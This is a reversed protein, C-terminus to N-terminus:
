RMPSSALLLFNLCIAGRVSLERCITKAEDESEFLGYVSSGSGSMGSFLAGKCDLDEQIKKIVPYKDQLPATFSNEFRWESVPQAYLGELESVDPWILNADKNQMHWADVLRYAEATPSSFRPWILVGYVDTRASVPRIIEGRGEVVAAAASLFFPVDSGIEAALQILRSYQLKTDFLLNLAYLVAASDSSGGGLGAGAPISKVLDVRIGSTIGTEAWFLRVAHTITNEQPLVMYPSVVECTGDPGDISVTLEDSLSIQQFLSEIDHFGDSRRKLVHLHFNIKAPALIQVDTM